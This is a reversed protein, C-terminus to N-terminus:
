DAESEADARRLRRRLRVWLGRATRVEDPGPERRSYEAAVFAETLGAVEPASEPLRRALERAYEYPTQGVARGYGRRRAQALLAGYLARLAARPSLGRLLPTRLRRPMPEPESAVLARLREAAQAAWARAEGFLARLEAWLRELLGLGLAQALGPHRQAFLMLAYGVLFIACGWFILAPLLPPVGEVLEAPPQPPPAVLEAPPPTAGAEGTFLAILLVPILALLSILTVILYGILVLLYSLGQLLLGFADFLGVGYSRPLLAAGGLVGGILLLSGLTWRRGVNGSVRVGELRWRSQLLALRAQSYLLFGSGFYASAALAAGWDLPLGPEGLREINVTRLALGLLVVFGGATFRGSLRGLAELRDGSVQALLRVNADRDDGPREFERPLLEDLDRAFAHGFIGVLMGAGIYALYTVDFFALPWVLLGRAWSALAEPSYGALAVIRMLVLLAVFEVVLYRMGEALWMRERRMVHQVYTAEIAVLTLAVLLDRGQWGPVFREAVGLLVSWLAVILTVILLSGVLNFSPRAM